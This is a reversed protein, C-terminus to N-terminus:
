LKRVIIRGTDGGSAVLTGDASIRVTYTRGTGLDGPRHAFAPDSHRTVADVVDTDGRRGIALTSGDPSYAWGYCTAGRDALFPHPFHWVLEGTELSYARPGEHSEPNAVLLTDAPDFGISHPKRDMPIRRVVKRRDIDWIEVETVEPDDDKYRSGKTFCLAMLKGSPSLAGAWCRMSPREGSTAFVDNGDQDLTGVIRVRDGTDFLLLRRRAADWSPRVRFSNFHADQFERYRALVRTQGSAPNFLRTEENLAYVVHEGGADFHVAHVFTQRDGVPETHILRRHGTGVDILHIEAGYADKLMTGVALTRGDPSLDFAEAWCRNPVKVDLVVAGRAAQAADAVCAFGERLKKWCQKEFEREAEPESACETVTERPRRGETWASRILRSGEVAIRYFRVKAPDASSRMTTDLSTM